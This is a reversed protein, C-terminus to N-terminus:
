HEINVSIKLKNNIYISDRSHYFGYKHKVIM